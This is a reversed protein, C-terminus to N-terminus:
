GSIVIERPVFLKNTFTKAIIYRGLETRAVLVQEKLGLAMDTASKIKLDTGNLHVTYFNGGLVKEIVGTEVSYSVPNSFIQKILNSM